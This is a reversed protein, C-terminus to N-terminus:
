GVSKINEQLASKEKEARESDLVKMEVLKDIAKNYIKLLENGPGMPNIIGRYLHYQGSEVLDGAINVVWSYVWERSSKLQKIGDIVADPTIRIANKIHRKVLQFGSNDFEAEIENLTDLVDKIEKPPFVRKIKFTGFDETFLNMDFIKSEGIYGRKAYDLLNDLLSIERDGHYQQIVARVKQSSYVAHAKRYFQAFAKFHELQFIFKYLAEYICLDKIPSKITRKTSSSLREFSRILKILVDYELDDEKVEEEEEGFGSEWYKEEWEGHETEPEGNKDDEDEDDVEEDELVGGEIWEEKSDAVEIYSYKLSELSEPYGVVSTLYINYVDGYVKDLSVGDYGHKIYTPFFESLVWQSIEKEQATLSNNIKNIIEDTYQMTQRFTPLLTRDQLEMWRKMLQGTTMKLQIKKSGKDLFEGVVKEEEIHQRIIKKYEESGVKVSYADAIKEQIAKTASQIGRDKQQSLEASRAWWKVMPSVNNKPDIRSLHRFLVDGAQIWNYQDLLKEVEDLVDEQLGSKKFFNFGM